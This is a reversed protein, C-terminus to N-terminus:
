YVKQRRAVLSIKNTCALVRLFVSRPLMVCDEADWWEVHYDGYLVNVGAGRNYGPLEVALPLDPDPHRLGSFLAFDTWENLNSSPGPPLNSDPHRFLAISIGPDSAALQDLDEPLKGTRYHYQAIHMGIQKLHNAEPTRPRPGNRPNISPLVLIGFAAAFIGLLLRVRWPNLRQRNM